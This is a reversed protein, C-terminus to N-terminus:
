RRFLQRYKMVYVLTVLVVGMISLEFSNSFPVSLRESIAYNNLLFLSGATLGVAMVKPLWSKLQMMGLGVFITVAPAVVIGLYALSIIFISVEDSIEPFHSLDRFFLSTLRSLQYVYLVIAGLMYGGGIFKFVVGFAAAFGFTTTFKKVIYDPSGSIAILYYGQKALRLLLDRTFRYVRDKERTIIQGAIREAAAASVGPLYKLHVRIVANIYNEYNGKRNRWALYAVEIEKKAAAKFIGGEVFRSVLETLLSSRFITGDIDFIALKIKKKKPTPMTQKRAGLSDRLTAGWKM